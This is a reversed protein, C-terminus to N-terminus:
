SKGLLCLELIREYIQSLKDLDIVLDLREDNFLDRRRFQSLACHLICLASHLTRFQANHMRCKASQMRCKGDQGEVDVARALRLQAGRRVGGGASDGRYGRAAAVVDKMEYIGAATVAPFAPGALTSSVPSDPTPLSSAACAMWSARSAVGRSTRTITSMSGSEM